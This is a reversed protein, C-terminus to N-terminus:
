EKVININTMIMENSRVARVTANKENFLCAHEQRLRGLSGYKARHCFTSNFSESAKCEEQIAGIVSRFVNRSFRLM